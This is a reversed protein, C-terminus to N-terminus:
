RNALELERNAEEAADALVTRVDEGAVIREFAVALINRVTTTGPISPVFGMSEMTETLARASRNTEVYEQYFDIEMASAYPSAGGFMIAWAATNEPSILYAIFEFAARERAEDSHFIVANGGWAGAFRGPGEQPMGVVGFEFNDGVASAVHNYGASSGVYMGVVQSGFQGSHFVGPTFNFIGENVLGALWEVREVTYENNFLVELNAADIFGPSGNQISLALIADIYSDFGFGPYGTHAHIARAVAEVETWTTPPVLGLEDLLTRNYYLVEGTRVAPIGFIRGDWQTVEEYVAPHLNSRFDPLIEDVLPTLDVILDANLFNVMMSPFVFVVDPGTGVRVNTTIQAEWDAPPQTQVVIRFPSDPNQANFSDVLEQFGEEQHLTWTHWIVIDTVGDAGGNGGNDDNNCGVLGVLMVAALLLVLLKRM